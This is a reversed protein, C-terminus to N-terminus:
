RASPPRITKKCALSGVFSGTAGPNGTASEPELPLLLRFVTGHGERSHVEVTGGMLDTLGRVIGLGVGTGGYRRTSESDAQTFDKFILSFHEPSIGIGSDSVTIQVPICRDPVPAAPQAAVAVRIYGDLTFKVANDLLHGLIQRLRFADGCFLDPVEDGCSIFLDIGKAQAKPKFPRATEELTARLSFPEKGLMLLGSEIKALDMVDDIIELLRGSAQTMHKVYERQEETLPTGNLLDSLGIIANMPTRVEHSINSLFAKKLRELSNSETSPAPTSRRPGKGFPSCFVSEALTNKGGAMIPRNLFTSLAVFRESLVFRTILLTGSLIMLATIILPARLQELEAPIRSSFILLGGAPFSPTFGHLASAFIRFLVAMVLLAVASQGIMINRALNNKM